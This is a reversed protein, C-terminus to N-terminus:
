AKTPLTLHTYSVAGLRLASRRAYVGMQPRPAPTGTKRVSLVSPIDLYLAGDEPMEFPPEWADGFDLNWDHNDSTTETKKRHPKSVSARVERNPYFTILMETPLVFHNDTLGASPELKLLVLWINRRFLFLQM